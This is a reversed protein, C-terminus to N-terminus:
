SAPQSRGPLVRDSRADVRVGTPATADFAAEVMVAELELALAEIEAPGLHHTDACISVDVADPSTAQRSMSSDVSVYLAGDFTDLKRDWWTTTLPLAARLEDETPPPGVPQSSGNQSTGNQGRRDNVFCSIDFEGRERGVRALMDNHAVTDFYGHMYANTAAKWARGVVVDFTTDAVDIVCISPQTLHSVSDACGPRFRNSVLVQAVSPSRGTHRALAVAYAALFVYGVGSGTRHAISRMALHMAPSRCILDWFRPERPDSSTGLRQAPITRVLQEWYRLSKESQRSGAPSRQRAALQLPTLGAVPVTGLGTAPDLNALDRTAADIGFGDVALHSYQVVLHTLAGDRRILGMRIPWETPYDFPTFEYRSRLQEAAADTDDGPDVDVIELPVEGSEAVVQRPPGDPVFRLRTRLAQHRSVVFRLVGAIQDVSSDPPLPMTGGINMTRGTRLMTQWIGQQGWTLEGVGSGEGHFPLLIRSTVGGM